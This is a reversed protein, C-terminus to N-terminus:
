ENRLRSAAVKLKDFCKKQDEEVEPEGWILQAIELRSTAEPFFVLVSLLGDRAHGKVLLRQEELGDPGIFTLSPTGLVGIALRTTQMQRHVGERQTSSRDEHIM